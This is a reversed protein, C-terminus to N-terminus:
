KTQEDFQKEIGTLDMPIYEYTRLVGKFKYQTIRMYNIVEPVVIQRHAVHKSLVIMPKDSIELDHGLEIKMNWELDLSDGPRAYITEIKRLCDFYEFSQMFMDMQIKFTKPQKKFPNWM